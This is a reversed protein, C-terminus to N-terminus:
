KPNYVFFALTSGQGKAKGIGLNSWCMSGGCVEGGSTGSPSAPMTCSWEGLYNAMYIGLTGVVEHARSHLPADRTPEACSLSPLALRLCPTNQAIAENPAIKIPQPAHQCPTCSTTYKAQAGM